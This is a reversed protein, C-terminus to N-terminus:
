LRRYPNMHTKKVAALQHPQKDRLASLRLRKKAGMSEQSNGGNDSHMGEPHGLFLSTQERCHSM